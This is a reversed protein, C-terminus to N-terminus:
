EDTIWSTEVIADQEGAFSSSVVIDGNAKFRWYQVGKYANSALADSTAFLNRRPRYGTPIADTITYETNAKNCQLCHDPASASDKVSVFVAKGYREFVMTFNRTGRVLTVETSTEPLIPHVISQM